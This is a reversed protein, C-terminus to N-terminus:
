VSYGDAPNLHRLTEGAQFSTAQGNFDQGGPKFNKVFEQMEPTFRPHQQEAIQGFAASFFGTMAATSGALIIRYGRSSARAAGSRGRAPQRCSQWEIKLKLSNM